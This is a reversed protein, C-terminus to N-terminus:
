PVLVDWEDDVPSSLSTGVLDRRHNKRSCIERSFPHYFASGRTSEADFWTLSGVSPHLITYMTMRLEILTEIQGASNISAGM